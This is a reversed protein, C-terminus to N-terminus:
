QWTSLGLFSLALCTNRRNFLLKSKCISQLRNHSRSTALFLPTTPLIDPLMCWLNEPQYAIGFKKKFPLTGSNMSRLGGRTWLINKCVNSPGFNLRRILLLLNDKELVFVTQKNIVLSIKRLIVLCWGVSPSLSLMATYNLTCYTLKM